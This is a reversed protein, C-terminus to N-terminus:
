RDTRAWCVSRRNGAQWEAQHFWTYGFEYDTPYHMWAGVWDSCYDRSRVQVVRDGPYPDGPQGVKVATVARWDHQQSCPVKVSGTVTAGRACTLWQDPQRRSFLGRATVPLPRYRTADDAGGVVDCRYWRAGKAWEDQSPRFWAWSLRIRLALSDDVGLFHEFDQQCHHYVWAGHRRDDYSSGTSAPLTGIAFTEATHRQRCPVVPSSNDPRRVDAPTLLRCSGLRPPTVRDADSHQRAAASCGALLVMGM